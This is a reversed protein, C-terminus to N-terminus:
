DNRWLAFLKHSVCWNRKNHMRFPCMFFPMSVCLSRSPFLFLLNWYFQVRVCAYGVYYLAMCVACPIFWHFLIDNYVNLVWYLIASFFVFLFFLFGNLCIWEQDVIQIQTDLKNTQANASKKNRKWLKFMLILRLYVPNFCCHLLAVASRNGQARAGM